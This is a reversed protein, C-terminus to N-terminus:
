KLLDLLVKRASLLTDLVQRNHKHVLRNKVELDTNKDLLKKCLRRRRCILQKTSSPVSSISSLNSIIEIIVKLQDATLSKLIASSQEKTTTLLLNLFHKQKLLRKSM